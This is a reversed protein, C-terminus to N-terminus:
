KAATTEPEAPLAEPEGFGSDDLELFKYREDLAAVGIRYMSDDDNAWLAKFDRAISRRATRCYSDALEAAASVDPHNNKKRWEVRKRSCM